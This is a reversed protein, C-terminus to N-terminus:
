AGGRSRYLLPQLCREVGKALIRSCGPPLVACLRCYVHLANLHHQLWHRM